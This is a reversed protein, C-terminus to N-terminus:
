RERSPRAGPRRRRGAPAAPRRAPRPGPPRPGRRARLRHELDLDVGPAGVPGPDVPRRQRPGALQTPRTRVTTKAGSSRARTLPSGTPAAAREEVVQQHQARRPQGADAGVVVPHELLAVGQELGGARARRPDDDCSDASDCARRRPRAGPGCRRRAARRAAARQDVLQPGVDALGVLGTARPAPVRRRRAPSGATAEVSSAARWRGRRRQGLASSASSSRRRSSSSSRPMESTPGCRSSSSSVRPLPPSRSGTM